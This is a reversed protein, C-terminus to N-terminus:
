SQTGLKKPKYQLTLGKREIQTINKAAPCDDRGKRERKVEESIAKLKSSM